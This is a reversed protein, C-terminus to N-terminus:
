LDTIIKWAAADIELSTAIKSLLTDIQNLNRDSCSSMYQNCNLTSPESGTKSKMKSWGTSNDQQSISLDVPGLKRISGPIVLTALFKVVYKPSNPPPIYTGNLVEQALKRKSPIWLQELSILDYFTNHHKTTAPILKVKGHSGGNANQKYM